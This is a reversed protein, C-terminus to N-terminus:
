YAGYRPSIRSITFEKDYLDPMKLKAKNFAELEDKGFALVKGNLSIVSEGMHKKKINKPIKPAVM